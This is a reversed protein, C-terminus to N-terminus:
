LSQKTLAGKRFGTGSEPIRCHIFVWQKVSNVNWTPHLSELYRILKFSAGVTTPFFYVSYYFVAQSPTPGVKFQTTQTPSVSASFHNSCNTCFNESVLLQAHDLFLFCIVIAPDSIPDPTHHSSQDFLFAPGSGMPSQLSSFKIRLTSSLWVFRHYVSAPSM